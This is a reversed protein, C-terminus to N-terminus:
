SVASHAVTAALALIKPVSIHSLDDGKRHMQSGPRCFALDNVQLAPFGLERYSEHDSMTAIYEHRTGTLDTIYVEPSQHTDAMLHVNPMHFFDVKEALLRSSRGRVLLSAFQSGEPHDALAQLAAADGHFYDKWGLTDTYYGICDFSVVGEVADLGLTEELWAAHVRSGM